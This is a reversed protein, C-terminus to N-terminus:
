CLKSAVLYEANLIAAGAAGRITNHGFATLKWDLVNCARLNGVSVTMGNGTTVDLLPQPRFKDSFYELVKPPSSPLDLRQITQLSKIIEKETAKKSTSFSVALTHGNYVPVRNCLASVKFNTLKIKNNKYDGFIKLIETQIKEEEDKIYPIVNGLIDLSPVGPYGAGSVAQMTTVMVKNLGFNKFVPFLAIALMIVACNPNTVIYGKAKLNKIQKAVLSMHSINVEPIVLPVDEDMRHNKSNSVVVHGQKAYYTEIEGAVSSDLGSFLIKAHLTDFCKKIKMNGIKKPIATTEKWNVHQDYIKNASKESAVIETVEFWPHEALLSIFKQGVAGTCGLVGVAIKKRV